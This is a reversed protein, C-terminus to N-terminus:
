QTKNILTITGNQNLEGRKTRAKVVYYYTGDPCMGNGNNTGNWRINLDTTEFMVQGWRNYIVLYLEDITFGTVILEDNLGDGNPTIVNPISIGHGTSVIMTATDSCTGNSVILMVLYDDTYSYGHVPNQQNSTSGNGFFWEWSTAGVSLDTFSAIQEYGGSLNFTFAADPQPNVIPDCSGPQSLCGGADQAYVVVTGTGTGWSITVEDTGQGSTITANSTVDWQYPPIGGSVTFVNGASNECVEPCVLIPPGPRHAILVYPHGANAFTWTNRTLTQFAGAVGTNVNLVDNWQNNALQWQAVGDWPGDNAVNYFFRLNASSTGATREISHYWLSLLECMSDDNDDRDFGDIDPNYNNFRVTYTNAAAANPIIEIPRYRQTVASSGTPFVYIGGSNTNRSFTGNGTSSVFGESGVIASNAVANTAPNLVFFTNGQTELERDGLNIGGTVGTQANLQLTKKRNVGVGTGLLNLQHFTTVTGNNSRIFQQLNGNLVVTGAGGNFTADNVWDQEVRWTGDGSASSSGLIELNGPLSFTSNRTITLTGNNNWNSAGELVVGGNSVMVAGSNLHVTAGNSYVLQAHAGFVASLFFALLVFSRM